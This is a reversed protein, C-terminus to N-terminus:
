FQKLFTVKGILQQQEFSQELGNIQTDNFVLYIFSLPRYEWSGRVNWRGQEDFSNYQYFASLQLRPNLAFRAGFTALHTDLDELLVGLNDLNNYEYDATFAVHPIPAYRLGGNATLRKGNYFGGWGLKGSVSLKRSQDSNYNIQHRTYYYEDQAISLGLPAFDFNINQWTPYIAYEFFSGDTFYVYIPFLYISAQQFNTPDSADQYYNFFAGPDFRRIWPISKPRWIFYGGPNHWIVNKQFVFGMDPNYDETVFNTLWGLYFKNTNYGAFFKGSLGLTDNSNDRSGSLLYSFTLESKPRILGDVTLTTNNSQTVRLEESAEDLRHTFMIGVNNEKGYNQIYRGVAFSAAPSNATQAQHMYLGATSRDDNRMTYRAGGDIRAPEANFNGQLGITRSFFPIVSRDAAGAWIGSNELFFQRKEPFYVNFRELNNVAQDVDAQAFDTNFTLDLVSRPNIAWKIDGGLKVNDDSITEGNIETDEYQYLFYPEIRVNASPEPVTLGKLQAAYTMRYPSFSQPIAPFVTQEYERRALRTFTIGWTVSDAIEPREYRISKFPIAFEAFYGSDTQHTRVTWLANWNDDTNNDNFNQMDRQNGYPTTQFSVCYQKLNQPDLQIGFADNEGWSFDRRLDQVRVGKKGLSDTCFVGVYLNKEDYLLRVQTQYRYTGGQRPEIRYFDHTVPAKQWSDEMLEGDVKIDESTRIARIEPPKTPPPFNEVEQAILYYAHIIFTLFVLVKKM